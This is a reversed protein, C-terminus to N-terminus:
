IGADPIDFVIHGHVSCEGRLNLPFLLQERYPLRFAAMVTEFHEVPVSSARAVKYAFRPKGWQVHLAASLSLPSRSRNTITVNMAIAYRNLQRNLVRIDAVEVLSSIAWESASAGVQRVLEARLEDLVAIAGGVDQLAIRDLVEKHRAIALKDRASQAASSALAQRASLGIGRLQLATGVALLAVVFACSVLRTTPTIDLTLTAIIGILATGNTMIAVVRERLEKAPNTEPM